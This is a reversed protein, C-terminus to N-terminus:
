LIPYFLMVLFGLAFSILNATIAFTARRLKSHQTLYKTFLLTEMTLIVVEFPIYLLLASFSGSSYMMRFIVFTLLVQTLINVALFPKWNNKLNFGFLLLILGEIILTATCTSLFQKLYAQILPSEAIEKARCDFYVTSNFAKRDVSNESVIIEQDVTVIITKFRDPVGVYSFEHVMKDGAQEGVLSGHLPVRTGTVLAPRWGKVNYNKLTEYMQPSTIEELEINTFLRDSDYDILLDLYYEGQPANEVIIKLTPKPGVDANSTNPFFLVLSIIVLFFALANKRNKGSLSKL